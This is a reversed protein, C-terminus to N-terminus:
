SEWPPFAHMSEDLRLENEADDGSDDVDEDSKDTKGDQGIEPNELSAVM